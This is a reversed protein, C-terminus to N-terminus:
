QDIANDHVYELVQLADDAAQTFRDIGNNDGDITPVTNFNVVDLINVLKPVLVGPSVEVMIWIQVDGYTDTRDYTYTGVLNSLSSDVDLISTLGMVTDVNLTGTKDSAAALASAALDLRESEPVSFTYTTTGGGENDATISLTVVGDVAPTAILAAYLALNELPSDITAGDVVLRGAPDLTVTTGLVGGDLKSLVEELSHTLVKDPSRAINLRGFDVEIVKDAYEPPLDGEPTLQIVQTCAVDLCPQINGNADLIPQGLDDRLIVWIDGYDVGKKRDSGGSGGGPKGEKGPVGAWPPRDSDEGEDESLLADIDKKGSRLGKNGSGKGKLGKGGGKGKQEAAKATNILSFSAGEYSMLWAGAALAVAVASVFGLKKWDLHRNLM